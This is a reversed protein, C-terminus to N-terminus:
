AQACLSVHMPDHELAVSYLKLAHSLTCGHEKRVGKNHGDHLRVVSTLVKVDPRLSLCKTPHLTLPFTYSSPLSPFLFLSM